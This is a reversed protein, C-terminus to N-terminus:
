ETAAKRRLLASCYWRSAYNFLGCELIILVLTWVVFHMILSNFDGGMNDMHFDDEPIDKRIAMLKEKSSKFMITNTLSFSPVVKLLWNMSDGM